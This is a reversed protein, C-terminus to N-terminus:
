APALRRICGDQKTLVYIEGAEDQGLRLDVRDPGAVLSSLTVVHGNQQLTLEQLATQKGLKLATVPVHFVRGTVIDGLVYHGQLSPIAAGRYVFGGTIASKRLLNGEDHDYQAVPYTFGNLTDDAPLAYLTADDHRDTVFTGERLPWGYNAGKRGINVEEIQAQGCDTILMMGTAADFSFNQPHRLGLAWIESLWGTRHIFPNDTPVRYGSGDGQKVPKICLIKGLPSAPNQAQDYPDTDNPSNGGDGVGVYLKGFEASDPRAAPNFMLQDACHDPTPHAIRLVERRSALDVKSLTRADLRWETIVNDLYHPYAGALVRVGAPRSAVTETTLTYLRRYGPQGVRSMNPHFAFSRLGVARTATGIFAGGRLAAVDLFLSCTGTARDISWMRGRSDNVFLRNRGDAAHFCFNLQARPYSASTPPPTCFAALEVVIGSRAIRAALPDPTVVRGAAVEFPAAAASGLLRSAAFSGVGALTTRVLGRRAIRGEGKRQMCVNRYGAERADVM